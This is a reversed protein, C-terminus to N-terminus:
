GSCHVPKVELMAARRGLRAGSLYFGQGEGQLQDCFACALLYLEDRHYGYPGAVLLLLAIGAAAVITVPGLALPEV